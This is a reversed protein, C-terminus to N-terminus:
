EKAEEKGGGGEGERLGIGKAKKRLYMFNSSDFKM